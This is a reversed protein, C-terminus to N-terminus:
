LELQAPKLLGAIREVESQEGLDRADVHRRQRGALVEIRRLVDLIQHAEAAELGLAAIHDLDIRRLGIADHLIGLRHRHQLAMAPRASCQKWMAAVLHRQRDRAAEPKAAGLRIRAHEPIEAAKGVVGSNLVAIQPQRFPGADAELALGPEVADHSLEAGSSSGDFEPLGRRCTRPLCNDRRPLAMPTDSCGFLCTMPWRSASADMTSICQSIACRRLSWKFCFM